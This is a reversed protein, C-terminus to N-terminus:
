VPVGTMTVMGTISLKPVPLIMDELPILITRASSSMALSAFLVGLVARFIMAIRM